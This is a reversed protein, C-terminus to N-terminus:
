RRFKQNHIEIMKDVKQPDDGDYMSGLMERM